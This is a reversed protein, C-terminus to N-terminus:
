RPSEKEDQWEGAPRSDTAPTRSQIRINHIWDLLLREGDVSVGSAFEKAAEKSKFDIPFCDGATSREEGNFYWAVRWERAPEAPKDTLMERIVDVEAYSYAQDDACGTLDDTLLQNGADPATPMPMWHTVNVAFYKGRTEAVYIKCVWRIRKGKGLVDGLQADVKPDRESM